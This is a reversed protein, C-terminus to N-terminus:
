NERLHRTAHAFDRNRKAIRQALALADPPAPASQAPESSSAQSPRAEVHQQDEVRDWPASRKSLGELFARAAKEDDAV